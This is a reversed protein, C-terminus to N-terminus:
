PPSKLFVRLAMLSRADEPTPEMASLSTTRPLDVLLEVALESPVTPEMASPSSTLSPLLEAPFVLNDMPEMASPSSRPLDELELPNLAADQTPETASLFTTEAEQSSPSNLLDRLAMLSRADVLTPEMASPSTRFSDMLQEASEVLRVTPEMASPSSKLSLRPLAHWVRTARTVSPSNSPLLTLVTTVRSREMKAPADQTRITGDPLEATKCTPDMLVMVSAKWRPSLISATTVRSREM